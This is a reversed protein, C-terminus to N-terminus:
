SIMIQPLYTMAKQTEWHASTPFMNSYVVYDMGIEISM